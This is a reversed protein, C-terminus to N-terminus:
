GFIARITLESRLETNSDKDGEHARVQVHTMIADGARIVSEQRHM